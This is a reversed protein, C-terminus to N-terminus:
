AKVLEFMGEIKPSMEIRIDYLSYNCIADIYEIKEEETLYNM